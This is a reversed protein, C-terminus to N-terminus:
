SDDGAGVCSGPTRPRNTFWCVAREYGFDRPLHETPSKLHADFWDRVESILDFEYQPLGDAWRLECVACFLGASVRSDDDIEGSVFRIFVDGGDVIRQWTFSLRLVKKCNGKQNELRMEHPKGAPNNSWGNVAPNAAIQKQDARKLASTSEPKLWQNM